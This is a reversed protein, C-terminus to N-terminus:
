SHYTDLAGRSIKEIREMSDDLDYLPGSLGKPLIPRTLETFFAFGPLTTYLILM